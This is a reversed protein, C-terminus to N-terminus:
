SDDTPVPTHKRVPKLARAVTKTIIGGSQEAADMADRSILNGGALLFYAGPLAPAGCLLLFPISPSAKTLVLATLALGFGLLIFFAGLVVFLIGKSTESAKRLAREPPMAPNLAVMKATIKQVEKSARM